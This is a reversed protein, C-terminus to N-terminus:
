RKMAAVLRERASYGKVSEVGEVMAKRATRPDVQARAALDLIEARTPEKKAMTDGKGMLSKTVRM